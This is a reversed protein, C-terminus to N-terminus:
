TKTAMAILVVLYYCVIAIFPILMQLGFVSKGADTGIGWEKIEGNATFLFAPKIALLIFVILLYIVIAFQWRALMILADKM